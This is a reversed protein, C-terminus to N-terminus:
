AAGPEVFRAAAAGFIFGICLGAVLAGGVVSSGVSLFTMTRM